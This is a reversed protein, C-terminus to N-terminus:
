PAPEIFGDAAAVDDVYVQVPGTAAQTYPICYMSNQVTERNDTGWNPGPPTATILRGNIWMKAIGTHKEPDRKYWTEIEYWTNPQLLVDTKFFGPADAGMDQENNFQNLPSSSFLYGFGSMFWGGRSGGESSRNLLVKYQCKKCDPSTINSIAEPTFYIYFRQYLGTPSSLAPNSPEGSHDWKYSVASSGTGQKVQCKASKSGNHAVESSVSPAVGNGNSWAYLPLFDGDEFGTHFYYHTPAPRYEFGQKLTAEGSDSVVVDVVGVDHPPTTVQLETSSLVSLSGPPVSVGGFRVITRESFNKGVILLKTGGAASGAQRSISQIKPACCAPLCCAIAFALVLVVRVKRSLEGGAIEPISGM